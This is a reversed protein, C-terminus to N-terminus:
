ITKDLKSELFSIFIDSQKLDIEEFNNEWLAMINEYFYSFKDHVSDENAKIKNTFKYLPENNVLDISSVELYGNLVLYQMFEEESM